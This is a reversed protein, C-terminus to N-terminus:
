RQSVFLSMRNFWRPKRTIDELVCAGASLPEYVFQIRPLGAAKAANKLQQTANFTVLKPVSIYVMTNYASGNDDGFLIENEIYTRIHGWVSKLTATLLDHLTQGVEELQRLVRQAQDTHKLQEYLLLKCGSIVYEEPIQPQAFKVDHGIVWDGEHFAAIAPAVCEQNSPATLRVKEIQAASFPIGPRLMGYCASNTSTGLDISVLHWTKEVETHNTNNAQQLLEDEPHQQNSPPAASASPKCGRQSRRVTTTIRHEKTRAM